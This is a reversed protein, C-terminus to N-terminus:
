WPADTQVKERQQSALRVRGRQIGRARDLRAAVRLCHRRSRGRASPLMADLWHANFPQRGSQRGHIGVTSGRRHGGDSQRTPAAATTPNLPDRLMTGSSVIM